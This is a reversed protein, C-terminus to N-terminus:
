WIVANIIRKRVVEPLQAEMWELEMGDEAIIIDGPSPKIVKGIGWGPEYFGQGTYKPDLAEHWLSDKSHYFIPRM